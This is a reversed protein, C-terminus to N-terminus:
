SSAITVKDTGADYSTAVSPPDPVRVVRRSELTLATGSNGLADVPVVRFQVTADDALPGFRMDFRWRGRGPVKRLTVWGAGGTNSQVLYHDVTATAPRQWQIRRHTASHRPEPGYPRPRRGCRIDVIRSAGKEIHARIVGSKNTVSYIGGVWFHFYAGSETATATVILADKDQRMARTAVKPRVRDQCYRDGRMLLPALRSAQYSASVDPAVITPSYGTIELTGLALTTM